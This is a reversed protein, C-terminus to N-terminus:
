HPSQKIPIGSKWAYETTVESRKLYMIMFHLLKQDDKVLGLVLNCRDCIWGRFLDTAHDHDFRLKLGTRECCECAEPCVWPATAHKRQLKRANKLKNQAKVKDPYRKVYARRMENVKDRNNKKWNNRVRRRHIVDKYPM